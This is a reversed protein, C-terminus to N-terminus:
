AKRFRGQPEPLVGVSGGIFALPRGSRAGGADSIIHDPRVEAPHPRIQSNRFAERPRDLGRDFTGPNGGRLLGSTVGSSPLRITLRHPRPKLPQGAPVQWPRVASMSRRASGPQSSSSLWCRQRLYQVPLCGSRAFDRAANCFRWIGPLRRIEPWGPRRVTSRGTFEGAEDHLLGECGGPNGDTGPGLLPGGRVHHADQLSLHGKGSVPQLVMGRRRSRTSLCGGM